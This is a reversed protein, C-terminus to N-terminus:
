RSDDQRGRCGRTPPSSRDARECDTSGARWRKPASGQRLRGLPGRRDARLRAHRVAAEPVMPLYITVRDGKAVGLAKLANAFRCVDRHLERYTLGRVAEAPDDPEWIIAVQEGREILHRDLANAAINLTGGEFWRIHFDDEAFSWDSVRRFPELWEIRKAEERWFADPEEISRRYMADYRKADILASESWDSPVDYREPM